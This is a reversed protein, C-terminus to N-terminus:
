METVGNTQRRAQGRAPRRHQREEYTIVELINHAEVWTFMYTIRATVFEM